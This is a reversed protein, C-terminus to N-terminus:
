AELLTSRRYRRQVENQDDTENRHTWMQSMNAEEGAKQQFTRCCDTSPWQRGRPVGSKAGVIIACHRRQTLSINELVVNFVPRYFSYNSLKFKNSILILWFCQAIYDYILCFHNNKLNKNLGVHFFKQIEWTDNLKFSFVLTVTSGKCWALKQCVAECQHFVATNIPWVDEYIVNFCFLQYKIRCVLM